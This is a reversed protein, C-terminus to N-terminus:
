NFFVGPGYKVTIPAKGDDSRGRREYSGLKEYRRDGTQIFSLFWYETQAM